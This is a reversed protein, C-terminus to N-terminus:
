GLDVRYVTILKEPNSSVRTRRIRYATDLNLPNTEASTGNSIFGGFEVDQTTYVTAISVFSQGADDLLEENSKQFRASLQTPAAFTKGGYGDPTSPAWYTITDTLLSLYSM